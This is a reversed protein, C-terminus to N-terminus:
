KEAHCEDCKKYPGKKLEKHCDRCNKHFVTGSKMKFLKGENKDMPHCESCKKVPDGEKWVNKGDEYVHHCDECKVGHEKSHKTHTLTVPGKKTDDGYAPDKIVIEEPVDAAVLIGAMLFVGALAVVLVSLWAKKPM